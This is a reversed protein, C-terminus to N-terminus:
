ALNAPQQSVRVPARPAWEPIQSLDNVTGSDLRTLLRRTAYTIPERFHIGDGIHVAASVWARLWIGLSNRKLAFVFSKILKSALVPLLWGAPERMVACLIQSRLGHFHWDRVSRGTMALAHYMRVKEIRKIPRGQNWLSTCLFTEGASRFFVDPFYDVWETVVRRPMMTFGTTFARIFQDGGSIPTETPGELNCTVAGLEPMRRFEEILLRFANDELFWADDDVIMVYDAETNALALNLAPFFGLNRHTRVLKAGPAIDRVVTESEPHEPNIVVVIEVAPYDQSACSALCKRLLEPRAHTVCLVAVRPM